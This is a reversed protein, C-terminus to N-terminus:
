EYSAAVPMYDKYAAEYDDRMIKICEGCFGSIIYYRNLKFKPTPAGCQCIQNYLEKAKNVAEVYPSNQIPIPKSALLFLYLIVKIILLEPKILPRIM